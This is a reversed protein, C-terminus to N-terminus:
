SPLRGAEARCDYPLEPSFCFDPWRGSAQWYRVLGLRSSVQIFRPDRRVDSFAPRFLVDIIYDADEMRQWKLLVAILEDDRHFEALAQAYNGIARPNERLASRSQRIAAEVKRPTPDLRAELFSIYVDAEPTPVAGSRILDLAGRADGFRLDVVYRAAQVSSAGPWLAEADRLAKRAAELRGSVALVRIYTDRAIPSLPDLKVAQLGDQAADDMRGVSQLFLAREARVGAHRPNREVATDLLRGRRVLDTPPVLLFEAVYAEALNPAIKRADRIHRALRSRLADAEPLTPNSVADGEAALLKAWAGAFGPSAQTVDLLMQVIKLPDYKSDSSAACANLYIKFADDDPRDRSNMAELACGLVYGLTAAMQPRLDALNRPAAFEKSWLIAKGSDMLVASAPAGGPQARDGVELVLDASSAGHDDVGVLRMPAFREGEPSGLKIALDRALRQSNPGDGASVLVTPTRPAASGTGIGLPGRLLAILVAVAVAGALAAKASGGVRWWSAGGRSEIPSVSLRYGVRPMTEIAFPVPDFQEALRRLGAICRNLSDDGIIRGNWCREILRERTVVVQGASALVVLVQMMRPQVESRQGAQLVACEAPNIRMPGLDFDPENGLNIRGSPPAPEFVGM